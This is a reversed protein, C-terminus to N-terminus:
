DVVYGGLRGDEVRVKEESVDVKVEERRELFVYVENVITNVREARLRARGAPESSAWRAAGRVAKELSPPTLVSVAEEERCPLTRSQKYSTLTKFSFGISYEEAERELLFDTILAEKM